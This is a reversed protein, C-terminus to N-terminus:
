ASTWGDPTKLDKRTAGNSDKYVRYRETEEIMEVPLQLTYNGGLRAIECQFYEEPAVNEPLGESHWRQITTGWYSDHFPVRDPVQGSLVMSVREQSTM